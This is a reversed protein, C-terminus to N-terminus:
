AALYFLKLEEILVGIKKKPDELAELLKQREQYSMERLRRKLLDPLEKHFIKGDKIDM